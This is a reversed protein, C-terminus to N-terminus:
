AEGTIKALEAQRNDYYALREEFSVTKSFERFTSALEDKRARLLEAQHHQVLNYFFAAQRDSIALGPTFEGLSISWYNDHQEFGLSLMWEKIPDPQDNM